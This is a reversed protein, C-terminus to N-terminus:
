RSILLLIGIELLEEEEDHDAMKSSLTCICMRLISISIDCHSSAKFFYYVCLTMNVSMGIPPEMITFLALSEPTIDEPKKVKLM